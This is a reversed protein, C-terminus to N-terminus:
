GWTFIYEHYPDGRLVCKTEKAIADARAFRLIGTFYGEYYKCLVPHLNAGTIKLRVRKEAENVELVELNGVTWYRKWVSPASNFIKDVSLFLKLLLRIIFSRKPGELGMIFIQKDNLGFAQQIALISLIRLGTPYLQKPDIKDYELPQGWSKLLDEVKQASEKKFHSEIYALDSVFAAGIVEGEAQMIKQAEEKSIM